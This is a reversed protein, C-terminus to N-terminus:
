SAIAFSMQHCPWPSNGNCRGICRRRRCQRQKRRFRVNRHRFHRVNTSPSTGQDCLHRRHRRPLLPLHHHHHYNLESPAPVFQPHLLRSKSGVITTLGHVLHHFPPHHHHRHYNLESPAPLFQPHLLLRSKSSITTTLGHLHHHSM